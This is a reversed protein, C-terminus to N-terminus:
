NTVLSVGFSILAGLLELGFLGAVVYAVITWASNGPQLRRVEQGEALQRVTQAAQAAASPLPRIGGAYIWEGALRPVVIRSGKYRNLWKALSEPPALALDSPLLVARPAADKAVPRDAPQVVVPLRPTQKHLAALLTQGFADDGPDFILVPYVAHKEALAQSALRGDRALTLGHYVGLGFFLFLTEFDKLVLLLLDAAPSGFLARLLLNLLDVAIVMGGVVGAFLALYLYVKRIISRRAHDGADGGSLAEAQMPRWALGWLPLGVLLTALAAALRPRLVDAWVISGIAADVVFSLLMSLGIFTAGLGIASLIYAYLRRMGARRSADPADSIARRLWGGYYTWVGALPIGISLPGSVKQIFGAFSMTEGFLIRVLVDLLVGGASLVTVVGALSLLYLVGLRLLSEREAQESLAGQVTRWSFVWLPVGVLALVVGHAGNAAQLTQFASPLSDLLFRLLQQAAAVVAVLSYVLWAHRYLRRVDAFSDQPAIVRWDTRLIRVFYAAAIANMVIAILNDSWSQYPGLFAQSTPLGAAQLALRDLLSLANQVIPILTALLVGYLFVARVGSARDEEDHRAFREALGWHVGFFPIGVIIAALGQTLVAALGCVAVGNCFISRGLNVLGWLVVELSILAVAYFYLRRVTRM